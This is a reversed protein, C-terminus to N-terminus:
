EVVVYLPNAIGATVPLTARIRTVAAVAVDDVSLAAVSDVSPTVRVTSEVALRWQFRAVEVWM